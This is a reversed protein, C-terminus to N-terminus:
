DCKACHYECWRLDPFKNCINLDKKKKLKKETQKEFCAPCYTKVSLNGCEKCTLKDITTLM